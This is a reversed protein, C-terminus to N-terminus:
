RAARRARFGAAALCGLLGGIADAVVDRPDANRGPVFIQHLEDSIGYALAIATGAAVMAAISLRFSRGLARFCLIGLIGYVLGHEIKDAFSVPLAPVDSGPVSSLAFLVTAWLAPPLWPSLKAVLRSV